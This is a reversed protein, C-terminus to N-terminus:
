ALSSYTGFNKVSTEYQDIFQTHHTLLYARSASIMRLISEDMADVADLLPRSEQVVAYEQRKELQLVATTLGVGCAVFLALAAFAAWLMRRISGSMGRAAAWGQLISATRRIVRLFYAVEQGNGM